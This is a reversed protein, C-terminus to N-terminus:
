IQKINKELVSLVGSENNSPAIASAISKVQRPANIMAYSHSSLKFMEIDNEGDGFVVLDDRSVSLQEMVIKLMDAKDAFATIDICHAGSYVCDLSEPLLEIIDSVEGAAGTVTIKLVSEQIDDSVTFVNIDPYYPEIMMRYDESITQHIFANNKTSVVFEYNADILRTIVTCVDRQAILKYRKNDDFELSAGNAGIYIIDSYEAFFKKLYSPHNSSAVVFRINDLRMKDYIHKFRVEDYENNDNLFTGDMDVAILKM